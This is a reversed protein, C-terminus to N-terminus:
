FKLQLRYIQYTNDGHQEGELQKYAYLSGEGTWSLPFTMVRDTKLQHLKVFIFKDEKAWFLGLTTLSFAVLCVVQRRIMRFTLTPRAQGTQGRYQMEPLFNRMPSQTGLSVTKWNPDINWAGFWVAGQMGIVGTFITGRSPLYKAGVGIPPQERPFASDPLKLTESKKKQTLWYAQIFGPLYTSWCATQHILLLGNSICGFIGAGDFWGLYETKRKQLDFVVLCHKYDQIATTM